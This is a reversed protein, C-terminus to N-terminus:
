DNYNSVEPIDLFRHIENRLTLYRSKRVYVGDFDSNITEKIEEIADKLYGEELEKFIKRM